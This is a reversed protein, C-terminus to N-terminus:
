RAELLLLRVPSLSSQQSVWFKEWFGGYRSTVKAAPKPALRREFDDTLLDLVEGLRTDPLRALSYTILEDFWLPKALAQAATDLLMLPFLVVPLWREILSTWAPQADALIETLNSNGEGDSDLGEVAALAAAFDRASCNFGAGAAGNTRLDAGYRNFPGGSAREHCTQCGGNDDTLSAPYTNSFITACGNGAQADISLLCVPLLLTAAALRTRLIMKM